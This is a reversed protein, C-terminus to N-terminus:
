GVGPAGEDLKVNTQIEVKADDSPDHERKQKKADPADEYGPEATPPDPLQEATVPAPKTKETSPASPVSDSQAQAQAEAESTETPQATSASTSSSPKGGEATTAAEAAGDETAKNDSTLDEETPPFYKRCGTLVGNFGM